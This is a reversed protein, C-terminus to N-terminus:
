SMNHVPQRPQVLLTLLRLIFLSYQYELCEDSLQIALYYASDIHENM